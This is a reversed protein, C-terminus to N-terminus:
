RPDRHGGAGRRHAAQPHGPGDSCQGDCERGGRRRGPHRGQVLRGKEYRLSLSLGDIKPEAVYALPVETGLNLFRRVRADFDHIGEAVFENALSLMPARHVVKGFGEAPAAGVQESASDARKLEPFRLEIGTNRLKLADYDADAMLPADEAHYARNAASLLGALRDLELRADEATLADVPIAATAAAQETM